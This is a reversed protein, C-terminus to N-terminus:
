ELEKYKYIINIMDETTGHGSDILDQEVGKIFKYLESSINEFYEAKAKYLDETSAFMSMVFQKM